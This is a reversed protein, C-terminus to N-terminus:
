NDMKRLAEFGSVIDLLESTISTQRLQQYQGNLLDLREEINKQAIQMAALRSSNESALSEACGRFLSVFFYQRILASFLTESPLTFMPIMKTKWHSRQLQDLWVQDLPLLQKIIPESGAKQHPQNYFLLLRDIPKQQQWQDITVLIEQTLNTIGTVSCPIFFHQEIEINEVELSGILRSGVTIIKQNETAIALSKLQNLTYQVIQDNFQGCMGQDSGFIIMGVNELQLNAQSLSPKQNKLVVQLGMEVTRTYDVLSEVAKEYQRLSVAALAKMTKVVSQLDQCTNIQRKIIEATTM